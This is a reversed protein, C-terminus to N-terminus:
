TDMNPAIPRAYTAPYFYDNKYTGCVGKNTIL